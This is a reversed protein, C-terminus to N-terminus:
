IQYGSRWAAIAKQFRNGSETNVPKDEESREVQGNEHDHDAMSAEAVAVADMIGVSSRPVNPRAPEIVSLVTEHNRCFSIFWFSGNNEHLIIAGVDEYVYEASEM